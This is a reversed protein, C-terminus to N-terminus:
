TSAFTYKCDVVLSTVADKVWKIDSIHSFLQGSDAAANGDIFNGFEYFTGTVETETFYATLYAINASEASSATTNRYAETDLATDGVAPTVPTGTGLAMYNIECAYTTDGVLRKIFANLGANCVINNKTETWRLAGLIYHKKRDLNNAVVFDNWARQFPSLVSQDYARVTIEGIIKIKQPDLM